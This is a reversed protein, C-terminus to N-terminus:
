QRGRTTRGEAPRKKGANPRPRPRVSLERARLGWRGDILVHKHPTSCCICGASCMHLTLMPPKAGAPPFLRIRLKRSRM